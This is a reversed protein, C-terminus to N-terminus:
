PLVRFDVNSLFTRQPTKVTVKGTTAGAPVTTKIESSSIVTFQAVTGNFTVSTAGTLGTGLIIVEAAVKGFRPQTEVFPRLGASLGFVTGLNTSPDGGMTTGYLIGNTNQVPGAWPAGGANPNFLMLTTLKGTPTVRFVTGCGQGYFSCNPTGGGAVTTGYYNGDTVQVLSGTPLMGDTCGSQSCFTYLTTLEGQSTIKFITGCGTQCYFTIGGASTTGYLEGNSGETLTAVPNSGDACYNQSCFFYLTTFTGDPNIRFVTGCGVANFSLCLGNNNGGNYTTGFLSGNPTQILGGEPTAGDAGAFSHLTTIAGDPTMRFVTGMGSSGGGSTTGYFEGDAGLMLGPVPNAGDSCDTQCFNHLVTMQGGPTIRFVTGNTSAGGAYTTGYFNGDPGQILGSYPEFGDPGSFSHLTKIVGRTTMKFVTGGNTTGYGATTGYLNGDFGQVLPAFPHEGDTGNFNVLTKFNQAPSATATVVCLLLVRAFRDLAIM